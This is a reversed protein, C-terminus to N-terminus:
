RTKSIYSTLDPIDASLSVTLSDGLAAIVKIDAPKVLEVAVFLSLSM